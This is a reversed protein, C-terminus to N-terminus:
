WPAEVELTTAIAALTSAEKETVSSDGSASAERSAGAVTQGIALLWRKFEVAQETPAKRNLLTAIEHCAVLAQERITEADRDDREAGLIQEITQGANQRATLGSAVESILDNDSGAAHTQQVMKRMALYETL